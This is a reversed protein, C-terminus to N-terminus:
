RRLRPLWGAKRLRLLLRMAKQTTMGTQGTRHRVEDALEERLQPSTALVDASIHIQEYARRLCATMDTNM